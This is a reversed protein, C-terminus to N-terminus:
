GADAGGGRPRVLKLAVKRELREDFASFVVGMGGAGLRQLVVFHAMRRPAAEASREGSGEAPEAEAAGEGGEITAATVMPSDHTVRAGMSENRDRRRATATDHGTM